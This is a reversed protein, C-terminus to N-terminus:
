PQHAAAAPHPPECPPHPPRHPQALSYHYCSHCHCHCRSLCPCHCHCYCHCHCNFSAAHTPCICLQCPFPSQSSPMSTSKHVHWTSVKAAQCCSPVHPRHAHNCLHRNAPHGLINGQAVLPPLSNFQGVGDYKCSQSRLIDHMFAAPTSTKSFMQQNHCVFTRPFRRQAGVLSAQHMDALECVTCTSTSTTCSHPRCHTLPQQQSGPAPAGPPPVNCCTTSAAPARTRCCALRNM